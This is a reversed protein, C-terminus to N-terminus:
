GVACGDIDLVQMGTALSLDLGHIAEDGFSIKPIEREWKAIEALDRAEVRRIIM